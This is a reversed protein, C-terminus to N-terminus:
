RLPSKNRNIGGNTHAVQSALQTTHQYHDSAQRQTHQIQHRQSISRCLGIGAKGTVLGSSGPLLYLAIHMQHSDTNSRSVHSPPRATFWFQNGSSHPRPCSLLIGLDRRLRNGGGPQRYPEAASLIEKLTCGPSILRTKVVDGAIGSLNPLVPGWSNM